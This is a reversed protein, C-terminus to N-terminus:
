FGRDIQMRSSQMITGAGKIAAQATAAIESLQAADANRVKTIEVDLKKQYTRLQQINGKLTSDDADNQPTNEMEEIRDEVLTKQRNLTALLIKKDLNQYEDGELELPQDDTLNTNEQLKEAPYQAEEEDYNANAESQANENEKYDSSGGCQSFFLMVAVLGASLYTKSFFPITKM